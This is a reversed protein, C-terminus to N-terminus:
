VFEKIFFCIENQNQVANMIRAWLFQSHVESRKPFNHCLFNQGFDAREVVVSYAYSFGFPFAFLCLHTHPAAVADAAAVFWSNSVGIVGNWYM